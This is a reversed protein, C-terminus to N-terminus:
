IEVYYHTFIWLIWFKRANKRHFKRHRFCYLLFSLITRPFHCFIISMKLNGSKWNCRVILWDILYQCVAEVPWYRLVCDWQRRTQVPRLCPGCVHHAGRRRHIRSASRAGADGDPLRLGKLHLVQGTEGSHRTQLPPFQRDFRICGSPAPGARRLERWPQHGEAEFGMRFSWWSRYLSIRSPFILSFFTFLHSSNNQRIHVDIFTISQNIPQNSNPKMSEM